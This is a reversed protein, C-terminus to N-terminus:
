LLACIITVKEYSILLHSVGRLGLAVMPIITAAAATIINKGKGGVKIKKRKRM